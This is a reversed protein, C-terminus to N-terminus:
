SGRAVEVGLFLDLEVRRQHRLRTRPWRGSGSPPGPGSTGRRRRVAQHIGGAGVGAAGVLAQHLAVDSAGQVGELVLVMIARVVMPPAVVADARSIAVTRAHGLMGPREGHHSSESLKRALTASSAGRAGRPRRSRSGRPPDWGAPRRPPGGAAPPLPPPRPWRDGQRDAAWRRAPRDRPRAHRIM